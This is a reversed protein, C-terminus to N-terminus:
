SWRKTAAKKAIQKRRKASVSKAQAAGGLKGLKRFPKTRVTM